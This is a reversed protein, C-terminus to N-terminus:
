LIMIAMMVAMGIGGIIMWTNRSAEDHNEHRDTEQTLSMGHMAMMCGSLSLVVIGIAFFVLTLLKM